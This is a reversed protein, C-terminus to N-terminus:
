EPRMMEIANHCVSCLAFKKENVDIYMHRNIKKDEMKSRIIMSYQDQKVKVKYQPCLKNECFPIMEMRRMDKGM